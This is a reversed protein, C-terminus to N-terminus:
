AQNANIHYEHRASRVKLSPFFFFVFNKYKLNEMNPNDEGSFFLRKRKERRVEKGM